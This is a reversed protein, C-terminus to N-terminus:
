RPDEGAAGVLRGTVQHPEALAALAMATPEDVRGAQAPTLWAADTAESSARVQPRTAVQVRFLVDVRRSRPEVVTAVPSGPEIDLGTEEAVERRVAADPREGRDLLGGPLTWGRRHHQRLMLVHGDHEILCLAGVTYTPSVARVIGLRLRRPLRKYARLALTRVGDARLM